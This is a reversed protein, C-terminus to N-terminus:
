KIENCSVVYLYIVKNRIISFWGEFHRNSSKEWYIIPELTEDSLDLLEEFSNIRVIDSKEYNVFNNVTVIRNDYEKLIKNVNLLCKSKKRNIIRKIIYTSIITIVIIIIIYIIAKVYSVEIKKPNNYVIEKESFDKYISIDFVKVNLPIGVTTKYEKNISKNKIRVILDVNLISDTGLLLSNSLEKVLNSYYEHNINITEKINIKGNTASDQKIKTLNFTKDWIPNLVAKDSEGLYKSIVEGRVFYEYDLDKVNSNSYTYDYTLKINDILSSIYSLSNDIYIDEIFPNDKLYVLYTPNSTIDATYIAEKPNGGRYRLTDIVKYFCFILSISALFIVFVIIFKDSRTM